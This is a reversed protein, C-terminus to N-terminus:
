SLSGVVPRSVMRLAQHPGLFSPSVLPCGPCPQRRHESDYLSTPAGQGEGVGSGELTCVRMCVVCELGM